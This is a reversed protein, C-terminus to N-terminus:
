DLLESLRGALEPEPLTSPITTRLSLTANSDTIPPATHTAPAQSMRRACISRTYSSDPRNARGERFAM